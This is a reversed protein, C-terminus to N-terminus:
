DLGADQYSDAERCMARLPRIWIGTLFIEWVKITLWSQHSVWWTDPTIIDCCHHPTKFAFIADTLSLETNRLRWTGHIFGVFIIIKWVGFGRDRHLSAYLFSSFFRQAKKGKTFVRWPTMEDKFSFNEILHNYSSWSYSFDPNLCPPICLPVRAFVSM